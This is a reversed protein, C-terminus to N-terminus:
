QAGEAKEWRFRREPLRADRDAARAWYFHSNGYRAVLDRLVTNLHVQPVAPRDFLSLQRAVAPAIDSLTLEVDTVGATLTLAQAMDRATTRLHDLSSSPQRLVVKRELAIGDEQTLVLTIHRVAQGNALLENAARDVLQELVRELRGWDAIGGDLQQSARAVVPPAYPEVPSTDRGNALRHLIRGQKGFRDLLAAVPQGAVDGLTYWGLLDMQRLTEGDVPLLAVTFGALFDAEHGPPIALVEGADVSMAAVRAPFKGSSLGLQAPIHTQEWVFQQLQQALDPAEGPKLTGLDLYCTAAPQDDLQAPPLFTMHRRQRGDARLELGDEAEVQTTFTTLAALLDEFARQYRSPVAPQVVVEACQANAQALNLGVRVGAQAARRSVGTVHQDEDVLVLPQDALDPRARAELTAAFFPLRVCAIM